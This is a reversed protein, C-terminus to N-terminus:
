DCNESILAVFRYYLRVKNHICYILVFAKCYHLFEVFYIRLVVVIEGRNFYLNASLFLLLIEAWVGM